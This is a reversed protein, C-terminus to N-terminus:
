EGYVFSSKDIECHKYFEELQVRQNAEGIHYSNGPHTAHLAGKFIRNRLSEVRGANMKVLVELAGERAQVM